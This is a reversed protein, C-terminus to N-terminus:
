RLRSHDSWRLVRQRNRRRRPRGTRWSHYSSWDYIEVGLVFLVKAFKVALQFARHHNVLLGNAKRRRLRFLWERIEQM